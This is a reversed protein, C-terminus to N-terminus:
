SEAELALLRVGRWHRVVSPLYSVLALICVAQIGSLGGPFEYPVPKLFDVLLRWLLYASLMLKFLLGPTGALMPQMRRLWAWLLGAFVIEYLQTPHRAVGDGFDIGWPLNTAIGYTGDSLGALFCGMRGIMLGLLVPFVFDDGTSRTIGTLKKALEVGLLGGLLGGVMSQGALLVVPQDWYQTLLHPFEAWFVLKNGLAAGFVCGLVVGFDKGMLLGPAGTRRRLIRYYQVGTFLGLAEFLPHVWPYATVSPM